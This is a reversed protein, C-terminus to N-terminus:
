VLQPLAPVVVFKKPTPHKNFPSTLVLRAPTNMDDFVRAFFFPTRVTPNGPASIM